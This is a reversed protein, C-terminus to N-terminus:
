QRRVKQLAIRQQYLSNSKKKNQKHVKNKIMRSNNWTIIKFHLHYSLFLKIDFRVKM